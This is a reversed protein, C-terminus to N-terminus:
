TSACKHTPSVSVASRGAPGEGRLEDSGERCARVRTCVCSSVAGAQSMQAYPRDRVSPPWASVCPSSCRWGQIRGAREWGHLEVARKGAGRPNRAGPAGWGTVVNEGPPRM